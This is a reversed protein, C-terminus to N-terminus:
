QQSNYDNLFKELQEKERSGTTSFRKLPIQYKKLISDKLVDRRSQDTGAKHYKYGDVEIVLLPQSAVQKCILFDVHTNGHMAYRREEPTLLSDDKLLQGLPYHPLIHLESEESLVEQLLQYMLNESDYRSIKSKKQLYKQRRETYQKYLYDFVSRVQSDKVDFNHYKVYAMLDSINKNPSQENGSTVLILRKKARSIAVNLLNPNDTFRTIVNDVTSLIMTDYERGQFKHVTNSDYDSLQESLLQIQNRYPSIIGTTEPPLHYEGLVEQHIMDVERQNRHDRAHNGEVSRYVELVHKEDQSHTMVVLQGDYFKQNCFQIIKPHCRYHEKLLIMDVSPFLQVMVELFSNHYSYVPSIKQEKRLKESEVGKTKEVINPLQKTDGVIVVNKACSLALAGTAIDVQSAEDIILYDYVIGEHLSSKASFTTSLVIPYEKLLRKSGELSSLDQQSFQPRKKEIFYREQLSVKLKGQSWKVFEKLYNDGNLSQYTKELDAMKAELEQLKREYFQKQITATVESYERRYFSFDTMRYKFFSKIKFFLGLKKQEEYVQECDWKLDMLKQSSIPKLPVEEFQHDNLYDQFHQYEIQVAAEEERLRALQERNQFLKQLGDLSPQNETDEQGKVESLYDPYTTSQQDIFAAKNKSSGLPAILFDLQYNPEAMKEQINLIASNNNSVVLATKGQLVLNALINLITQTKGTGPPGQIITLPNELAHKVAKLQSSNCNFPFIMQNVTSHQRLSNSKPSLFTPLLTTKDSFSTVKQYPAVITSGDEAKIGNITALEELYHFIKYSDVTEFSSDVNLESEDIFMPSGAEFFLQYKNVQGDTYKKICTVDGHYGAGTLISSDLTEVYRYISVRHPAYKYQTDNHQYKIGIYGDSLEECSEIEFSKEVWEGNQEIFILESRGAM